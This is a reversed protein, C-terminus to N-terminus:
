RFKFSLPVCAIFSKGTPEQLKLKKAADVAAVTFGWRDYAANVPFADHVAGDESFEALVAVSAEVGARLASPPYQISNMVEYYNSKLSSLRQPSVVHQQAVLREVVEAPDLTAKLEGDRREVHLSQVGKFRTIVCPERRTAVSYKWAKHQKLIEENLSPHSSVLIMSTTVAGRIDVAFEIDFRAQEGEGLTDKPLELAVIAVPTGVVDPMEIVRSEVRPVSNKRVNSGLERDDASYNQAYVCPIAFVILTLATAAVTRQRPPM